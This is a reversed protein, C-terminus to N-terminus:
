GRAHMNLIMEHDEHSLIHWVFCEPRNYTAKIYTSQNCLAIAIDKPAYDFYRSPMPTFFIFLSTLQTVILVM